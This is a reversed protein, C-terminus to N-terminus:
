DRAGLAIGYGLRAGGAEAGAGAGPSSSARPLRSLSDDSVRTEVNCVTRGAEAGAEAGAGLGLGVQVADPTHAAAAM